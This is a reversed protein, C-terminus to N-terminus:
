KKVRIPPCKLFRREKRAGKKPPEDPPPFSAILTIEVIILAVVIRGEVGPTENAGGIQGDRKRLLLYASPLGLFLKMAPLVNVISFVLLSRPDPSLFM